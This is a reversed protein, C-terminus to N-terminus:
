AEERDEAKLWIVFTTGHGPQSDVTMEGGHSAVIDYVVFLGLGSGRGVEKTTFFPDFIKKLVEPEIGPGDDEILIEVMDGDPRQVKQASIWLHGQDGVADLANKLLNIFVQQMRQKDAFVSIDEPIELKIEVNPPVQGRVLQLTDTLLRRLPLPEKRFEKIRSFELLTRVIDRAKDTQADIQALMTKQLGANDAPLEELLIQASTSINSLPNNLEHAVGALLTGLAALKEAQVLQRQRAQLERNMRQFAHLLVNIEEEVAREPPDLIDGGQAIKRTYGALLHLSSVVRRVLIAAMVISLLVLLIASAVLTVRTTSLLERIASRESRSMLEAFDTLLKGHHRVTEQAQRADPADDDGAQHFVQFRELGQRYATMDSRINHLRAATILPQLDGAHRDLLADLQQWYFLADDLDQRQGYLFYNKEFRRLELNINLFDDIVEVREVKREVQIVLTSALLATGIVLLLVLTFGYVIKERISINALTM